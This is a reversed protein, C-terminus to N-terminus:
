VIYKWSKGVAKEQLEKLDEEYLELDKQSKRLVSQLSLIYRFYKENVEFSPDKDRVNWHYDNLECKNRTLSDYMYVMFKKKSEILLLQNCVDMIIKNNSIDEGPQSLMSDM